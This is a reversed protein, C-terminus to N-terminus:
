RTPGITRDTAALGANVDFSVAAAVAATADVMGWGFFEDYGPKGIDQASQHLLQRLHHSGLQPNASLMLGAAGAVLPASASTGIARVYYVHGLTFCGTNVSLDVGQKGPTCAGRIFGTAGIAGGVPFDGGPAALRVHSSGYNSYFALHDGPGITNFNPNDTASIPMVNPLDSPLHLFPGIDNLDLGSNGASAIILSGHNFAYNTARVLAMYIAQDGKDARLAFGGLSMSIVEYGMNAAYVIAAISWEFLGSGGGTPTRVLVKLNAISCGPCVGVVGGLANGVAGAALSSTWTGHGQQDEPSGDDFITSSGVAFPDVGFLTSQADVIKGAVDPHLSSVGTDLIAITVGSSGTTTDWAGGTFGYIGGGFGGVRYIAWQNAPVNGAAPIYYRDIAAAGSIVAPPPPMPHNPPGNEPAAFEDDAIVNLPDLTGILDYGARTISPSRRLNELFVDGSVTTPRAFAVGIEPIARTMQGGAASIIGAANSPLSTFNFVVVVSSARQSAVPPASVAPVLALIMMASIAVALTPSLKTKM